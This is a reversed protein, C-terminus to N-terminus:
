QRHGGRRELHQRLRSEMGSRGDRVARRLRELIDAKRCHCHVSCKRCVPCDGDPAHNCGCPFGDRKGSLGAARCCYCRGSLGGNDRLISLTVPREAFAQLSFGSRSAM